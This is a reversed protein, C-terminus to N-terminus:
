IWLDSSGDPLATNQTFQFDDAEMENAGVETYINVLNVYVDSQGVQTGGTIISAPDPDAPTGEPVPIDLGFADNIDRLDEYNYGSQPANDGNLPFTPESGKFEQNLRQETDNVYLLAADAPDESGAEEPSGYVLFFTGQDNDDLYGQFDGGNLTSTFQAVFNEEVQTKGEDNQDQIGPLLNIASNPEDDTALIEFIDNNPFDSETISFGDSPELPGIQAMRANGNADGFGPGSSSGDPRFDPWGYLQNVDEGTGAEFNEIVDHSDLSPAGYWEDGIGFGAELQALQTPDLNGDDDVLDDAVDSLDNPDLGPIDVDFSINQLADNVKTIVIDEADDGPSQEGLDIEDFGAGGDVIDEGPGVSVDDNGFGTFAWTQGPEEDDEIGVDTTVTDDGFGTVLGFYLGPNGAVPLPTDVSFDGLDDIGHIGSGASLTIDGFYSDWRWGDGTVNQDAFEADMDKFSPGSVGAGALNNEGTFSRFDLEIEGSDTDDADIRDIHFDVLPLSFIQDVADGIPLGVFLDDDFVDSQNIQAPIPFPSGEGYMYLDGANNINLQKISSQVEGIQLDGEDAVDINFEDVRAATIDEINNPTANPTGIVAFNNSFNSREATSVNFEDIRAGTAAVDAAGVGGMALGVTPAAGIDDLNFIGRNTGDINVDRLQMAAANVFPDLDRPDLFEFAEQGLLLQGITEAVNEPPVSTDLEVFNNDPGIDGISAVANDASVNLFRLDTAEFMADTNLPTVAEEGIFMNGNEADFTLSQLVESNMIAASELGQVLDGFLNNEEDVEYGAITLDGDNDIDDDDESGTKLTLDTTGTSTTQNAAEDLVLSGVIVAEGPGKNEVTIKRMDEFELDAPTEDFDFFTADDRSTFDDGLDGITISPDEDSKTMFSVSTEDDFGTGNEFVAGKFLDGEIEITPTASNINSIDVLETSTGIVYTTGNSGTSAPVVPPDVDKVNDANFRSDPADARIRIEEVNVIEPEVTGEKTMHVAVVDNDGEGEGGSVVDPEDNRSNMTTTFDVFNDGSGGKVTVPEDTDDKLTLKHDGSAQTYDFEGEVYATIETDAKGDVTLREFANTEERLDFASNSIATLAVNEIENRLNLTGTFDEAETTVESDEASDDQLSLSVKGDGTLTITPSQNALEALSLDATDVGDDVVDIDTVGEAQGFRLQNEGEGLSEVKVVEISKLTPRPDEGNELVASLTDTGQLGDLDDVSDLEGPGGDFLDDGSTGDKNDNVGTLPQTNGPNSPGGNDDDGTDTDDDDTNDDDGSGADDATSSTDSSDLTANVSGPGDSPITAGGLTFQGADFEVDASGDAFAITTADDQQLFELVTSGGRTVTITNGDSAFQYDALAGPLEFRDINGLASVEPNGAVLVTEDNGSTGRVDVDASVPFSEDNLFLTAM